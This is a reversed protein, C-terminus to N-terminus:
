EKTLVALLKGASDRLTLNNQSVQWSATADLAMRFDTEIQMAQCAMMTSALPGFKVKDGDLQYPGNFRNCGFSGSARNEATFEIFAPREAAVAKGGLEVARWTGLLSGRAESAAPATGAPKESCDKPNFTGSAITVETGKNWLVTYGDSYRAGSASAAQPLILRPKGTVELIAQASKGRPAPQYTILLYEGSQCDYRVPKPTAAPLTASLACMGMLIKALMKTVSICVRCSSSKNSEM